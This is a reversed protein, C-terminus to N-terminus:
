QPFDGPCGVEEPNSAVGLGRGDARDPLSEMQINVIKQDLEVLRETVGLSFHRDLVELSQLLSQCGLQLAHVALGWDVETFGPTVREKTDTARLVSRVGWHVWESSTGYVSEYLEDGEVETFMKKVTTDTWKYDWPDDPLEYPTGAQEADAIAKRVKSTYYRPGHEDLFAKLQDKDEPTYVMGNAENSKIQRWDLVAGFRLWLDTREPTRRFAWLLRGMGEIMTRAILYADHHQKADLLLRVSRLHERQKEVFTLAMVDAGDLPDYPIRGGFVEDVVTNLEDALQHFRPLGERAMREQIAHRQEHTRSQPQGM